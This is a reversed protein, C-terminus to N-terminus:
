IRGCSILGSLRSDILELDQPRSLRHDGDEIFSIGVNGPGFAKQIARAKEWKVSEDKKGQVLHIPIGLDFRKDLLCNAEGDEILARTIIYPEDYDSPMAFYGKEALDTRNQPTIKEKDFDRTFDPAAAVGVLGALPTAKQAAILLAIWGGMSSGVLIVPRREPNVHSLVDLADDKWASITGEEFKGESKGHGSYDFRLFAQGRARCREELYVAKTGEMDSKFGSLFMVLPLDAGKEDAPSFVYALSAKSERQLYKTTM